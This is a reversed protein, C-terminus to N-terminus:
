ETLWRLWTPGQWATPRWDWGARTVTEILPSKLENLNFSYAYGPEPKIHGQDDFQLGLFRRHEVQFFMIGMLAKWEATAGGRGVSWDFSSVYDTARVKQAAEDVILGVRFTRKLGRARALDVWKGDAYRWTAFWENPQSGREVRLPLDLQNLGELRAGLQAASLATANSVAPYSGAWAAGKFYFLLIGLVYAAVGIGLVATVLPNAPLKLDRVNIGGSTNLPRFILPSHPPIAFGGAQMRSQIAADSAGTWVGVWTQQHLAYARDGSPRTVLYGRQSDGEGKLQSLGSAKLYSVWAKEAASSSDFQALLVSDGNPLASFRAAQASSFVGGPLNRADVILQPDVDPGFRSQLDTLSPLGSADTPSGVAPSVGKLAEVYAANATNNRVAIYVQGVFQPIWILMFFGAFWAIPRLSAGSRAMILALLTCVLTGGALLILNIGLGTNSRILQLM